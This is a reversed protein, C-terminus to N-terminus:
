MAVWRGVHGGMERSLWGDGKEKAFFVKIEYVAKFNLPFFYLNKEGQTELFTCNQLM